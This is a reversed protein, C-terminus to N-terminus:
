KQMLCCSTFIKISQTEQPTFLTQTSRKKEEELFYRRKSIVSSKRFSNEYSRQTYNTKKTNKYNCLVVHRSYKSARLKKLQSLHNHAGNKERKREAM